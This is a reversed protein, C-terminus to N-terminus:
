EGCKMKKKQKVKKGDGTKEEGAEKEADKGAKKEAHETVKEDAEKAANEEAEKAAQAALKETEKAALKEGEKVALEGGKAACKGALAADGMVPIAAVASIGANVFDGEANYIGANLLDPVAGLWPILGAADLGGHVWEGVAGWFGVETATEPQPPPNATVTITPLTVSTESVVKGVNNGTKPTSLDPLKLDPHQARYQAYKAYDYTEQSLLDGEWGAGAM